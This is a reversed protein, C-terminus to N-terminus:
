YNIKVFKACIKSIDLWLGLLNLYDYSFIGMFGRYMIAGFMMGSNFHHPQPAFFTLLSIGHAHENIQQPPM